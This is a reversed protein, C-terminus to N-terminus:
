GAKELMNEIFIGYGRTPDNILVHTVAGIIKGNQIIPSGSMGQVIGGTKELLNKDTVRIVMDKRDIENNYNVKEIKIDYEECDNGSVTCLIKADGTTVENKLSVEYQNDNIDVNGSLYGFIGCNTNQTVTGYVKGERMAGRIEGPTGKKGKNVSLVVAEYAKGGTIKLLNSEDIDNIGHGLAGFEGNQPNIYTVTGVGSTVNKVWIGLKYKGDNRDIKSYFVETFKIDNRMIELTIKGDKINQLENVFDDVSEIGKDNISLIMDGRQINKGEYPKAKSYDRTFFEEFSVVTLGPTNLKIGIVNGGAIVTNASIVNIDVTKLPIFGFLSLKVNEKGVNSSVLKNNVAKVSCKADLSLTVFNHFPYSMEKGEIMTIKDPIASYVTVYLYLLVFFTIVCIKLFKNNKLNGKM